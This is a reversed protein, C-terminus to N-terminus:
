SVVTCALSIALTLLGLWLAAAINHEDFIEKLVDYKTGRTFYVLASSTGLLMAVNIFKVSTVQLAVGFSEAFFGLVCALVVLVVAFHNQNM